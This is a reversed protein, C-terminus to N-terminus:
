KSHYHMKSYLLYIFKVIKQIDIGPAKRPEPLTSIIPTWGEPCDEAISSRLSILGIWLVALFFWSTGHM